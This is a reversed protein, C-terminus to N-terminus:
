FYQTIFRLDGGSGTETAKGKKAPLHMLLRYENPRNSLCGCAGLNVYGEACTDDSTMDEDMIKVLLRAQQSSVPVEM